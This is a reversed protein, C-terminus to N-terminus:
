SDREPVVDIMQHPLLIIASVPFRVGVGWIRIPDWGAGWVGYYACVVGRKGLKGGRGLGSYGWVTGVTWVLMSPRLQVKQVSGGGGM